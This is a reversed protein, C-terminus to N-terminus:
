SPVDYEFGNSRSSNRFSQRAASAAAGSTLGHFVNRADANAKEDAPYVCVADNSIFASLEPAKVHSLAHEIARLGLRSWVNM